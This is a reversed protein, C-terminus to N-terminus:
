AAGAQNVIIGDKVMQKFTRTTVNLSVAPRKFYGVNTALKDHVIGAIRRAEAVNVVRKVEIREFAARFATPISITQM